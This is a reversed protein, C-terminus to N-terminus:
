LPIAKLAAGVAEAAEQPTHTGTLLLRLHKRCEDWESSANADLASTIATLVKIPEADRALYGNDGLQLAIRTTSLWAGVDFTATDGAIARLALGIVQQQQPERGGGALARMSPGAGSISSLLSALRESLARAATSDNANRAFVWMAYSAGIRAASGASQSTSNGRLVSWGPVDWGAGLTGEVSGVVKASPLNQALAIVNSAERTSPWLIVGAISAAALLPLGLGLRRWRTRTRRPAVSPTTERLTDAIRAADLFEEYAEPSQAVQRLVNSREENPLTGDLFAALTEEDIRRENMRLM